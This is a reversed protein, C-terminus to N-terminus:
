GNTINWTNISAWPADAARMEAPNQREPYAESMMNLATAFRDAMRDELEDDRVHRAAHMVAGFEYVDAHNTIVWNTLNGSNLAAPKRYYRLTLAVATTPRDVLWLDSGIIWYHRTKSSDYATGYPLSKNAYYTGSEFVGLRVVQWTEGNLTLALDIADAFDSPLAQSQSASPGYSFFAEMPRVPDAALRAFIEDEARAIFDPILSTLDNRNLRQAVTTGLSNYDM